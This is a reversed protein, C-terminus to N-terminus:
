RLRLIPGRPKAPPTRSQLAAGAELSLPIIEAVRKGENAAPDLATRRAREGADRASGDLSTQSVLTGMGAVCMAAFLITAIWGRLGM